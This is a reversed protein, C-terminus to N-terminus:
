WWVFISSTDLREGPPITGGLRQMIARYYAARRAIRGDTETLGGELGGNIIMITYGFGPNGTWGATLATQPPTWNGSIVQHSSPRYPQPNMWFWIATKWGIVGDNVVMDPESLLRSDGFIIQSFLGYNTNWSLQIPGRGHYSRGSVPPFDVSASDWYNSGTSGRFGIEENFFLGWGLPSVLGSSPWGPASPWSGSTEHATNALFGALERIRDNENDQNLFNGFDVTDRYVMSGTQWSANFNEGTRVIRWTDTSKDYVQTQSNWMEPFGEIHYERIRFNAMFRIAELLNDYAYYDGQIQWDPFAAHPMELIWGASGVRRPFLAEFESRSMHQEFRAVAESPSTGNNPSVDIAVNSDPEQVAALIELYRAFITAVEARTATGNPAFRGDPFGTIIGAARIINVASVAWASINSQDAFPPFEDQVRSFEVDQNVIYNHLMVSMEERTIARSPEFFNPNLNHSIEHIAAWQVAAFYWATVNTADEFLPATTIYASLDMGEMNALVQVFMARTMTEQPGFLNQTTGQFLSNEWVTHVHSYYWATETVDIFPLSQLPLESESASAPMSGITMVFALMLVFFRKKQNVKFVEMAVISERGVIRCGTTLYGCKNNLGYNLLSQDPSDGRPSKRGYFLCGAV